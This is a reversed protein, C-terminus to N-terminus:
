QSSHTDSTLFCDGNEKRKGEEYPIIIRRWFEQAVLQLDGYVAALDAYNLSRIQSGALMTLVYNLEGHGDIVQALRQIHPDLVVRREM